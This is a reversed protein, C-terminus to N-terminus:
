AGREARDRVAKITDEVAGHGPDALDGGGVDLAERLAV